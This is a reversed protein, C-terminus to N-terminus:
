KFPLYILRIFINQRRANVRDADVTITMRRIVPSEERIVVQASLTEVRGSCAFLFGVRSLPAHIM